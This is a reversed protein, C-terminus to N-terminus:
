SLLTVIDGWRESAKAMLERHTQEEAELAEYPEEDRVEAVHAIILHGGARARHGRRGRGEAEM